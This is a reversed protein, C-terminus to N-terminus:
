RRLQSTAVVLNALPLRGFKTIEPICTHLGKILSESKKQIFVETPLDKGGIKKRDLLQPVLDLLARAKVKCEPKEKVLALYCGVSPKTM